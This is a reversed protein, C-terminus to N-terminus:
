FGFCGVLQLIMGNDVMLRDDRSTKPRTLDLYKTTQYLLLLVYTAYNSSRQYNRLSLDGGNIREQM